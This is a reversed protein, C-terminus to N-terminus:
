AESSPGSDFRLEFIWTYARCMSLGAKLDKVAGVLTDDSMEVIFFAKQMWKVADQERHPQGTDLPGDRVIKLISKGIGLLKAALAV